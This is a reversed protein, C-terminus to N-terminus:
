QRSVGRREAKVLAALVRGQEYDGLSSAVDVYVDRADLTLTRAGAVALLVQSKEYDSGMGRTSRLVGLITDNSADPRRVLEKLVRGREYDSSVSDLARFFAATGAGDLPQLGAVQILLSALEYDSDISRSADLIGALLAPSVPHKLAATYVRRAEYDSSISKAADFYAARAADDVLLKDAASILLSALEYDSDIEKGAQTLAQRATAADLPAKLLETFYLRKGYSGSILSIERLVGQPGDKKLIRAVRAPAGFGTQRIFRPLAQALWQRGEPEFAKESSGSWYRRTITGAADARFEVTHSSIWGGDRIRLEGNPSMKAVETDDDSFEFEGSYNVELKEGNNSWVFNGSSKGTKTV